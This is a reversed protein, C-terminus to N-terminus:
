FSYSYVLGVTTESFAPQSGETAQSKRRLYALNANLNHKQMFVCTSSLRVNLVENALIGNSLTRNFSTSFSNKIKGIPKTLTLTPGWTKTEMGPM